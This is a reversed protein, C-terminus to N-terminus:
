QRAQELAELRDRLLPVTQAFPRAPHHHQGARDLDVQDEGFLSVLLFRGPRCRGPRELPDVRVEPIPDEPKQGDEPKEGLLRPSLSRRDRRLRRRICSYSSAGSPAPSGGEDIPWATSRYRTWGSRASPRNLHVTRRIQLM